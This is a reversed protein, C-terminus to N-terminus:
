DRRLPKLMMLYSVMAVSMSTVAVTRHLRRKDGSTEAPDALAGTVAFGADSLLMLASHVTRWARGDPQRRTEWWNLGGTVTNIAFLGAVGGALAGHSSRAWSPALSGKKILQDGAAYEAVFLPITVWSALKHIRLRTGYAESLRVAKRRPKTTDPETMGAGVRLAAALPGPRGATSDGAGSAVILALLASTVM